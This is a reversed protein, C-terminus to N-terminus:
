LVVCQHPTYPERQTLTRTTLRAANVQPAKLQEDEKGEDIESCVLVEEEDTQKDKDIPIVQLRAVIPQSPKYKAKISIHIPARNHRISYEYIDELTRGFPTRHNTNDEFFMEIVAFISRMYETFAQVGFLLHIFRRILRNHQGTDDKQM